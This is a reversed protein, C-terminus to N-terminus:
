KLIDDRKCEAPIADWIRNIEATIDAQKKFTSCKIQFYKFAVHRYEQHKEVLEYKRVYATLLDSACCRHIEMRYEPKLLTEMGVLERFLESQIYPLNM